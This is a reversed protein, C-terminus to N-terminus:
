TATRVAERPSKAALRGKVEAWLAGFAQGGPSRPRHFAVPRRSASAAEIDARYPVVTGCVRPERGRFVRMTERHVRKAPEAMSFFAVARRPDFGERQLLAVLTEWARVSLPAPITPVLLCDAARFVNEALLSIGSPCDLFVWDFAKALPDLLARLTSRPKPLGRLRADLNRYSLRSPIVSLGPVATPVALAAPEAEGRLLRGVKGGPARDVRLCYGAAGQPDLDWLLVPAGESAALCALNVAATSKGVGGKLNYLAIIKM